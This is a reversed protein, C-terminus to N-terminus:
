EVEQVGRWQWNNEFYGERCTGCPEEDIGVKEHACLGCYPRFEGMKKLDEVAADRERELQQIYALANAYLTAISLNPVYFACQSCIRNCKESYGRKRCELGKKIEDPTKM